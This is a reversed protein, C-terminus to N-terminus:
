NKRRGRSKKTPESGNIIAQCDAETLKSAQTGKPLKYNSDGVKIYPGYRGDIVKIEGFEALYVLATRAPDTSERILDICTELNM